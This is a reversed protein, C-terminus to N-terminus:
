FFAGKFAEHRERATKLLEKFEPESRLSDLLPDTEFYSHPFFGNEISHRLVRLASIRDGLEAYAQALKYSIEGDGLGGNEIKGEATKLVEIGESNKGAISLRLAQGIQSTIAEPDLLVARDFAAAAATTDKLHYYGLGRYFNIYGKEKGPLSEIDQATRNASQEVCNPSSRIEKQKV